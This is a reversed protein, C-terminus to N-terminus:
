EPEGHLRDLATRYGVIDQELLQNDREITIIHKELEVKQGLLYVSSALFLLVLVTVMVEYYSLRETKM